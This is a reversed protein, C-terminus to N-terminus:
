EKVQEYQWPLTLYYPSLGADSYYAIYRVQGTEESYAFAMVSDGCKETMTDVKGHWSRTLCVFDGQVFREHQEDAFLQTVREVEASLAALPLTWGATVDYSPFLGDEYDYYYVADTLGREAPFLAQFFGDNNLECMVDLKRYDRIDTTESETVLFRSVFVSVPLYLICLILATCATRAWEQFQKRRNMWRLLGITITPLLVLLANRLVVLLRIVPYHFSRLGTIFGLLLALVPIAELLLLVASCANQQLWTMWMQVKDEGPVEMERVPGSLAQALEALTYPKDAELSALASLNETEQAVATEKRRQVDGIIEVSQAPDTIIRRIEEVTFGFKRLTAISTLCAADEETFDFSRRGLYNETYAPSVLGEEIYFRVARDTLGTQECIQKIKM